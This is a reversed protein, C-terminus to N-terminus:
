AFVTDLDQNRKTKKKQQQQQYKKNELRVNKKRKNM